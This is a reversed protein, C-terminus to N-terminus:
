LRSAAQLRVNVFSGGQKFKIYAWLAGGGIRLFGGLINQYDPPKDPGLCPSKLLASRFCLTGEEGLFITCFSFRLYKPSRKYSSSLLSPWGLVRRTATSLVLLCRRLQLHIPPPLLPCPPRTWPSLPPRTCQPCKQTWQPCEQTWWLFSCVPGVGRLPVKTARQLYQSIKWKEGLSSTTSMCFLWWPVKFSFDNATM